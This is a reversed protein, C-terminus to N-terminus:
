TQLLQFALLTGYVEQDISPPQAGKEEFTGAATM